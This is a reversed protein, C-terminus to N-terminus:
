EFKSVIFSAHVGGLGNALILAHRMRFDRCERSHASDGNGPGDQTPPMMQKHLALTALAVDTAVAAGQLHGLVTKPAAIPLPQEFVSKIGREEAIDEAVLAPGGPFIVDVDTPQIDAQALSTHIARKIGKGSQPKSSDLPLPDTGRSWGHIEGLIPVGRRLAHEREELILFTSGEGILM